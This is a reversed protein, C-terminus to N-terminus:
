SISTPSIQLPVAAFRGSVGEDLLCGMPYLIEKEANHLTHTPNTDLDAPSLADKKNRAIINIGRSQM